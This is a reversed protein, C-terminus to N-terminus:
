ASVSAGNESRQSIPSTSCSFFDSRSLPNQRPQVHMDLRCASSLLVMVFLAVAPMTRHHWIGRNGSKRLSPALMPWGGNQQIGFQDMGLKRLRPM